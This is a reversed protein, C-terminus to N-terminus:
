TAKDAESAAPLDWDGVNISTRLEAILPRLAGRIEDPLESRAEDLDWNCADSAADRVPRVAVRKVRISTAALIKGLIYRELAQRAMIARTV